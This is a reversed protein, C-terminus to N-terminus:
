QQRRIKTRFLPLSLCSSTRRENIKVRILPQKIIQIMGIYCRTIIAGIYRITLRRITEDHFDKFYKICLRKGKIKSARESPSIDLFQKCEYLKHNKASNRTHNGTTNQTNQNVRSKKAVNNAHRVRNANDNGNRKKHKATRITFLSFPLRGLNSTSYRGSSVSKGPHVVGQGGPLVCTIDNL